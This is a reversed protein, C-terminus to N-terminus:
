AIQLGSAKRRAADKIHLLRIVENDICPPGNVDRIKVKPVDQDVATM